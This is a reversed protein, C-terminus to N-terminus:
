VRFLPIPNYGMLAAPKIYLRHQRREVTKILDRPMQGALLLHYPIIPIACCKAARTDRVLQIALGLMDPDCFLAALRSNQKYLGRAAKLKERTTTNPDTLVNVHQDANNLM